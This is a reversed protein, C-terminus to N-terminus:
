QIQLPLRISFRTGEEPRSVFWVEGKLYQEIFLKISYTGLGRGAGGKTSFSRKFLSLQINQPIVPESMVHFLVSKEEQEARLEVKDGNQSAELANKVLNGLCRKMILPDTEINIEENLEHLILQKGKALDHRHYLEYASRLLESATVKNFHLELDGREAYLISRQFLIEENLQKSSHELITQLENREETDTEYRLMEAIGSVIGSTNLVDHFFIRELAERRKLASNDIVSFLIYFKENIFLPASTVIYDHSFEVGDRVVTIRCENVNQEQTLRTALLAKAAGCEACFKSTGCGGSNVEKHICNIAEGFRLGIIQDPSKVGLSLFMAKNWAVIQREENVIVVMEPFGELMQQLLPNVMLAHRESLVQQPTKREPADFDTMLTM